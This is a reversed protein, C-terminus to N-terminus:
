YNNQISFTGQMSMAGWLTRDSKGEEYTKETKPKSLYVGM